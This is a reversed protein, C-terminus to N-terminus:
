TLSLVIPDANARQPEQLLWDDFPLFALLFSFCLEFNLASIFVTYFAILPTPCGPGRKQSKVLSTSGLNFL